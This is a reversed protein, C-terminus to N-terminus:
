SLRSATALCISHGAPPQLPLESGDELSRGASHPLAASVQKPVAPGAPECHPVRPRGGLEQRVGLLHQRRSLLRPPAHGPLDLGPLSVAGPRSYVCRCCDAKEADLRFRVPRTSLGLRPNAQTGPVPFVENGCSNEPDSVSNKSLMFSVKQPAALVTVPEM